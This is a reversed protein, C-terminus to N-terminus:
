IEVIIGAKKFKRMITKTYDQKESFDRIFGAMADALRLFVSQEDKLGRIKKYKIRLKKLETRVKGIERKNIGDITIKVQYDNEKKAFIAKAISFSILPTYEKTDRYVSYFISNKLAKIDVIQLLYNRKNKNRTKTWKSFKKGSKIEINRLKKELFELSKKEKLVIAVLFFLGKTDQGTEDVFCYLKKMKKFSFGRPNPSLGKM